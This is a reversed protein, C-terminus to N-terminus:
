TAPYVKLGVIRPDDDRPEPARTGAMAVLLRYAPSDVEMKKGGGHAVTLTPKLLLLSEEPAFPAVRRQEASKVIATYDPEPDFGLLSLKFGGKGHQSGHCAGQNCGLKTLVPEVQNRFSIPVQRATREIAVPVITDITGFRVVIEGAGDALPRIEGDPEVKVRDPTKSEVRADLTVDRRGGDHASAWLLWDSRPQQDSYAFRPRFSRWDCSRNGHTSLRPVGVKQDLRGPWHSSGAPCARSWLDVVSRTSFAKSSMRPYVACPSPGKVFSWPSSCLFSPAFPSKARAPVRSVSFM